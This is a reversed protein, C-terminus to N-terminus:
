LTFNIGIIFTRSPSYINSTTGSMNQAANMGKRASIQFINEGSLYVTADSLFRTGRITTPIKYSLSVTQLTLYSGNVLWRTSTGANQNTANVADLRPVDTIDGPNQWRKKMDVHKSYGYTADYAMFNLYTNDYVKGGLSYMFLFSLEVRKYRFQNNWGGYVKPIASSGTFSYRAQTVTTTLTDSGHIRHAPSSPNYAVSKTDLTYLSSGDTPDVGKWERLWYDYISHGEMLKKTGSIIGNERSDEPLKTIKNVLHTANLMTKWGFDKSKVVDYELQIEIGRNYMTGINKAITASTGSIAAAGSSLPIPVNFLLDNSRRDFFEISGSLRNWLGFEVAIDFQKNVEWKLGKNPLNTQYTGPEAANPYGISYLAMYPYYMTYGDPDLIGDNGVTGYSSRLKLLDIWQIDKLFLEKEMRWGASVGWFNGWRSSPDFKSSGDRRFSAGFLYKNDYSYNLHASYGETRHATTSSTLSNTTTFNILETNGDMVQNQRFGYLYNYQYSYSDHKLKIDINHMDGIMTTYSLTQNNNWTTYFYNTRSARGAPSGDGVIKNQYTSSLTSVFNGSTNVRFSLGPLPNVEAYLISGLVNRKQYDTNYEMEAVIHRGTAYPRNPSGLDTRGGWDWYKEGNNDYLYAGSTQDHVYIPYIPGMNRAFYFPNAYGAGGDSSSYNNEDLTGNVSVGAKFWNVPRINVNARATMRSYDTKIIYGNVKNYTASIFYDTKESGGTASFAYESTYGTRQLADFWDLDDAWLLQASPSIKGDVGVVQDAPLNFPNYLVKSIVGDTYTGSANQPASSARQSATTKDVGGAMLGNRYTEWMIEYWDIPGMTEQESLSRTVIGQKLSFSVKVKDSARGKKTTVMIVGNAARSGYLASSSADKLITITEIDEMPIYNLSNSYPMGDLVILPENSANVSGIGRIRITPTSGPDGAIATTQVGSTMGIVGQLANTMPQLALKETSIQAASGTFSKRTSTGAATVLIEDLQKADSEMMVNILSRGEVNVEATKMGMFTFELIANTPASIMYKGNVDTTTYTRAGKVTVSVGIIPQGDSVDTVVGSIQQNQAWSAGAFLLCVFLFTIKKM